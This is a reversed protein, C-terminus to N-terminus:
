AAKVDIKAAKPMKAQATKPVELTLIGNKLTATAKAADIEAPLDIVRLIENSCREKYVTKGNKREETSEKKGSVTVRGPEISVELDKPGFGPAEVQVEVAEDSESVEVHAQHLLEAEAKLWHDIERGFVRGDGEFLEFARRSISDRIRNMRDFLVQPEVLRLATPELATQTATGKEAM